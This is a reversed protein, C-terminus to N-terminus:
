GIEGFIILSEDFRSLNIMADAGVTVTETQICLNLNTKPDTNLVTWGGRIM